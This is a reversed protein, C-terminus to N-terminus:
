QRNDAATINIVTTKDNITVEWAGPEFGNQLGLDLPASITVITSMKGDPEAALLDAWLNSWVNGSPSKVNIVMQNMPTATTEVVLWPLTSATNSGNVNWPLLAKKEGLLAEYEQQNVTAPINYSKEIIINDTDVIDVETATWDDIEVDFTIEKLKVNFKFIYHKGAELTINQAVKFDVPDTYEEIEELEGAANRQYTVVRYTGSVETITAPTDNGAFPIVMLDYDPNNLYYWGETNGEVKLGDYATGNYLEDAIATFPDASTGAANTFNYENNVTQSAEFGWKETFMNYQGKDMFAGKVKVNDFIVKVLGESYAEVQGPDTNGNGGAKAWLSIKSLAHKMQFTVDGEHSKNLNQNTSRALDAVLFDTQDAYAVGNNVLTTQNQDDTVPTLRPVNLNIIHQGGNRDADPGFTINEPHYDSDADQGDGQAWPAYAFFSVKAGTSPWYRTPSYTWDTGDLTLKMNNMFIPNSANLITEDINASTTGRWALIGIGETGAIASTITQAKTEASKGAYASFSIGKEALSEQNLVESKTCSALAALAMIGLVFHKKM